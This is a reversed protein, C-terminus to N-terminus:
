LLLTIQLSLDFSLGDGFHELKISLMHTINLSNRNEIKLKRHLSTCRMTQEKDKKESDVNSIRVM